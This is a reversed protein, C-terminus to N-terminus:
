VEACARKINLRCSDALPPNKLIVAGGSSIQVPEELPGRMKLVRLGLLRESKFAGLSLRAPRTHNALCVAKCIAKGSIAVEKHLYPGLLTRRFDSFGCFHLTLGPKPERFRLGAM